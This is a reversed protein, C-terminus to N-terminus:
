ACHHESYRGDKIASLLGHLANASAALMVDPEDSERLRIAGDPDAAINVCNAAEGSFSSKQWDRM